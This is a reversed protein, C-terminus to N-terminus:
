ICGLWAARGPVRGGQDRGRTIQPLMATDLELFNLSCCVTHPKGRTEGSGKGM